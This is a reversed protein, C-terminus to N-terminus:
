VRERCSARGIEMASVLERKPIARLLILRGIPLMMAGGLGQCFRGAILSSLDWALACAISSLTFVAIAARFVTKAGYRDACWGSIPIFMALAVFYATFALKLTVPDVKLDAAMAALSTAIVTSVLSEMFMASAIVLTLTRTSTM